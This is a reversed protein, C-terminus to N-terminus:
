ADDDGIEQWVGEGTLEQVASGKQRGSYSIQFSRVSGDGSDFSLIWPMGIFNGSKNFARYGGILQAFTWRGTEERSEWWNVLDGLLRLPIASPRYYTGHDAPITAEDCLQVPEDLQDPADDGAPDAPDFSAGEDASARVAPQMAQLIGRADVSSVAAQRALAELRKLIRAQGEAELYAADTQVKYILMAVGVAAVTIGGFFLTLADWAMRDGGWSVLLYVVSAILTVTALGFVVILMWTRVKSVRSEAAHDEAVVLATRGGRGPSKTVRGEDLLQDRARWYEAEPAGLQQRLEANTRPTGDQPLLDLLRSELENM